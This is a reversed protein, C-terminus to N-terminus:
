KQRGEKPYKAELEDATLRYDGPDKFKVLDKKKTVPDKDMLPGEKSFLRAAYGYAADRGSDSLERASANMESRTFRYEPDRTGKLLFEFCARRYAPEHDLNLKTGASATADERIEDRRSELAALADAATHTPTHSTPLPYLKPANKNCPDCFAALNSLHHDAPGKGLHQPTLYRYVDVDQPIARLPCSSGPHAKCGACSCGRVNDRKICADIMRRRQYPTLKPTSGGLWPDSERTLQAM